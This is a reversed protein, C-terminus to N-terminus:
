DFGFLWVSAWQVFFLCKRAMAWGWGRASFAQAFSDQPADRDVLRATGRSLMLAVKVRPRTMDDANKNPGFGGPRQFEGFGLGRRRV